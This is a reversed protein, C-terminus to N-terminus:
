SQKGFADSNIKINKEQDKFLSEFAKVSSTKIHFIKTFPDQATQLIKYEDSKMLDEKLEKLEEPSSVKDIQYKFDKLIESKLFDGKLRQFKQKINSFDRGNINYLHHRGLTRSSTYGKYKEKVKKIVLPSTSFIPSQLLQKRNEVEEESVNSFCKSSAKIDANYQNLDHGFIRGMISQRLSLSMDLVITEKRKKFDQEGTVKVIYENNKKHVVIPANYSQISKSIANSILTEETKEEDIKELIYEHMWHTNSTTRDGILVGEDAVLSKLKGLGFSSCCCDALINKFTVQNDDAIKIISDIQNERLNNFYSPKYNGHGGTFLLMNCESKKNETCFIEFQSLFDEFAKRGPPTTAEIVYSAVTIGFHNARDSKDRKLLSGTSAAIFSPM